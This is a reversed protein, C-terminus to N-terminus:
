HRAPGATPALGENVRGLLAILQDRAAADVRGLELLAAKFGRVAASHEELLRTILAQQALRPKLGLQGEREQTELAAFHAAKTDLMLRYAQWAPLAVAPLDVAVDATM